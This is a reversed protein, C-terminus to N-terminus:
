RAFSGVAWYMRVPTPAKDFKPPQNLAEEVVGDVDMRYIAQVLDEFRKDFTTQNTPEDAANLVSDLAQDFLKRAGARDGGLFM